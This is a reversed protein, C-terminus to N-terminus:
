EHFTPAEIKCLEIQNDLTQDADQQAFELAKQVQPLALLKDLTEQINASVQYSMM